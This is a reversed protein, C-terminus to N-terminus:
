EGVLLSVRLARACLDGLHQPIPEPKHTFRGTPAINMGIVTCGLRELVATMAAGGAGNVADLVVRLKRAQVKAVNIYPLAAIAEVHRPIADERHRHVGCQDYPAYEAAGADVRAFITACPEPRLFLGDAAVFKLGNWPEDNHSSTM